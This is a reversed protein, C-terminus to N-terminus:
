ISIFNFHLWSWFWCILFSVVANWHRVMRVSFLSSVVTGVILLLDRVFQESTGVVSTFVVALAYFRFLLFSSFTWGVSRLHCSVRWVVVRWVFQKACLMFAVNGVRSAGKSLSRTRSPLRHRRHAPRAGSILVIACHILRRRLFRILIDRTVVVRSAWWPTTQLVISYVRWVVIHVFNFLEAISVHVLALVFHREKVLRVVLPSLGLKQLFHVFVTNLGVRASFATFKIQSAVKFAESDISRLCVRTFLKKHLLM